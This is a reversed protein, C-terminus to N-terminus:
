ELLCSHKKVFIPITLGDGAIDL